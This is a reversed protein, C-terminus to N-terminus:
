CARLGEQVPMHVIQRHRSDSTNVAVAVISQLISVVNFPPQLCSTTLNVKQNFPDRNICLTEQPLPMTSAVNRERGAVM